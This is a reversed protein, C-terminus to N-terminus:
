EKWVKKTTTYKTNTMKLFYMGIPLKEISITGNTVKGESLIKGSIDSVSYDAKDMETINVIGTTPNPYINIAENFPLTETALLLDCKSNILTDGTITWGQTNVLTNRAAVASTGYKLGSAGLSRGMVTPNNKEWGVLTATYNDCDMGSNPLLSSLSVNKNLTWKGLNQNFSSTGAFMMSMDTVNSINWNGINQNFSTATLFMASMNTVKSTNWNGIDQNFSTANNFMIFMNSVRSTNWNGIDQNFSRANNFMYNMDTVKSTNWNGINQNFAGANTFMASMNTVNSTNWSGINQNFSAASFFMATMNTVSSTNWNGIDQNFSKAGFFMNSMNTVNSTNWNSINQNFSTASRFMYSMDRVNTLNPTDIASIRLNSCNSFALQMSSWNATGWQIIDVLNPNYVKQDINCLRKLNIPSINLILNEDAAINLGYLIVTGAVTQSFKGSGSKNFTQTYWTYSVSDTTLADFKIQTTAANFNAWKTIFEGQSLLSSSTMLITICAFLTVKFRNQLNQFNM